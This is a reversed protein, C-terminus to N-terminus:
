RLIFDLPKLTSAARGLTSREREGLVRVGGARNQDGSGGFEGCDKFM